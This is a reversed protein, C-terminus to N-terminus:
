STRDSGAAGSPGSFESGTRYRSLHVQGRGAPAVGAGAVDAVRVGVVVHGVPHGEVLAVRSSSQPLASRRDPTRGARLAGATGAPPPCRGPRRPSGTSGARVSVSHVEGRRGGARLPRAAAASGARSDPRCPRPRGPRAARAPQGHGGRVQRADVAAIRCNVDLDGVVVPRGPLPGLQRGHRRRSASPASPARRLGAERAQPDGARSLAPLATVWVMVRAKPRRQYRVVVRVRAPGCGAAGGAATPVAAIRDERGVPSGPGSRSRRM